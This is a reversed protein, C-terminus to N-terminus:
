ATDNSLSAGPGAASRLRLLVTGRGVRIGRGATVALATGDCPAVVPRYLTGTRLLGLIDGRRVPDGCEVFPTRRMPHVSFYDGATRASVLVSPTGGCVMRLRVEPETIEISHLDAEQMWAAIRRLANLNM